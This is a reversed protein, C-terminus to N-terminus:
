LTEKTLTARYQGQESVAFGAAEAMALSQEFDGPKVHGKPEVFLLAGGLKLARFSEIFFVQADPLEHVVHLAPIFDVVGAMDDLGMSDGACLRTEIVPPVGAKAARRELGALMKTQVDVAVVRGKLGVMQALPLTFFGMGSGPEVITMGPKVYPSLLKRPSETLKRLPNLLVYGMWWPCVHQEM